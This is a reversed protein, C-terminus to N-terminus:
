DGKSIVKLRNEIDRVQKKVVDLHRAIEAVDRTDAQRLLRGRERETRSERVAELLVPAVLLMGTLAMATIAFNAVVTFLLWGSVGPGEPRTRRWGAVSPLLKPKFEEEQTSSSHEL